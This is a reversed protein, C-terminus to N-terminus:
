CWLPMGGKDYRDDACGGEAKPCSYWPDECYDHTRKALVALTEVMRYTRLHKWASFDITLAM